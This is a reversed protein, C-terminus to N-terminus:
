RGAEILAWEESGILLPILDLDWPRGIGQPDNYINYTVDNDRILRRAERYRRVLEDKGMAELSRGFYEWHPRLKGPLECMENHINPMFACNEVLTSDDMQAMADPDSM